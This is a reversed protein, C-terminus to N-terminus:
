QELFHWSTSQFSRPCLACHRCIAASNWSRRRSSSIGAFSFILSSGAKTSSTAGAAPELAAARKGATQVSVIATALALADVVLLGSQRSLQGM